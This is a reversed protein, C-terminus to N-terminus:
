PEEMFEDRAGISRRLNHIIARKRKNVAPQSIGLEAAVDSETKGHWFLREILWREPEALQSLPGQLADDVRPLATSTAASSSADGTDPIEFGLRLAYAWEQRYRTLVGFLIRQRVFASLPVGRAPDYDCLAQWAAALGQAQVEEIWDGISWRPPIRWTRFRRACGAWIADWDPLDEPCWSAISALMPTKGEYSRRRPKVTRVM